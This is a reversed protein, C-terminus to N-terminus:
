DLQGVFGYNLSGVCAENVNWEQWLLSSLCVYERLECMSEEGNSLQTVVATCGDKIVVGDFDEVVVIDNEVAETIWLSAQPLDWEWPNGLM